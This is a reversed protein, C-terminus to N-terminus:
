NCCFAIVCCFLSFLKHLDLILLKLADVIRCLRHLRISWFDMFLSVKQAVGMNVSSIGFLGYLFRIKDKRLVKGGRPCFM